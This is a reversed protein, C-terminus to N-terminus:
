EYVTDKPAGTRVDLHGSREDYLSRMNHLHVWSGAPIVATACGITVGYKVIREGPAIERLAIKHGGPIEEAATVSDTRAEGLMRVRGPILASLATAVNDQPHIQFATQEM